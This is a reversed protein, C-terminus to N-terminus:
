YNEQEEAWSQFYAESAGLIEEEAMIKDRAMQLATISGIDDHTTGDPAMWRARKAADFFLTDLAQLAAGNVTGGATIFHDIEEDSFVSETYKCLVASASPISATAFSVMGSANFTAGTASWATGGVQVYASGTTINRHPLLFSSAYGDGVFTQERLLPFDACKLRVQQATTLTM